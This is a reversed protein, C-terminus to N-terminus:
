DSRANEPRTRAATPRHGTTGWCGSTDWHLELWHPRETGEGGRRRDSGPAARAVVVAAARAAAAPALRAGDRQQQGLGLRRAVLGLIARAELVLGLLETRVALDDVRVGILVRGLLLALGLGREGLARLHEDEVRDVGRRGGRDDVAGVLRLDRHDAVVAQDGLRGDVVVDGEVVDLDALQLRGAEDGLQLLLALGARDHHDVARGRVVVRAQELLARVAHDVVAAQLDGLLVVRGVPARVLRLRLHLLCDGRHALVAEHADVRGVVARGAARDRRHLAVAHLRGPARRRTLVGLEGADLADEGTVLVHGDVLRDLGLGLGRRPEGHGQDLALLRRAPQDVLLRVVALLVHGRHDELRDRDDLAVDLVRDDLVAEPLGRLEARALVRAGALLGADGARLAFLLIGSMFAVAVAVAGINSSRPTLLRNPATCASSLTSKWTPAPSTTPRTPSLPAPFDVSTLTMDPM